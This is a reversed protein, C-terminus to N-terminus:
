PSPRIVGSAIWLQRVEEKTVRKAPEPPSQYPRPPRMSRAMAAIQGPKPFYGRDDLEMWRKTAAVAQDDTLKRLATRWEGPELDAPISYCGGALVRVVQKVGLDTM